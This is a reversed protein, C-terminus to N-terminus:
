AFYFSKNIDKKCSLAVRSLYFSVKWKTVYTSVFQEIKKDIM